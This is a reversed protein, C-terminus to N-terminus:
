AGLVWAVGEFILWTWGVMALAITALYVPRAFRQRVSNVPYKTINGSRFHTRASAAVGHIAARHQGISSKQRNKEAKQAEHHQHDHIPFKEYAEGEGAEQVFILLCYALAYRNACQARLMPRPEYRLTRYRDRSRTAEHGGRPHARRDM